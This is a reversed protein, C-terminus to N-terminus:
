KQGIFRRTPRAPQEVRDTTTAGTSTGVKIEATNILTATTPITYAALDDSWRWSSVEAAAIEGARISGMEIETLYPQLQRALWAFLRQRM